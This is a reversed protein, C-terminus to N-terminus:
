INELRTTRWQSYTKRWVKARTETDLFVLLSIWSTVVSAFFARLVKAMEIDMIIVNRAGNLWQGM